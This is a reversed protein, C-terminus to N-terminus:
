RGSQEAMLDNIARSVREVGEKVKERDGERVRALFRGLFKDPHFIRITERLTKRMKGKDRDGDASSMDSLFANIDDKELSASYTPWPIDSYRMEIEQIEGKEGAGAGEAGTGTGTADARENLNAWRSIYRKRKFANYDQNNTVYIGDEAGTNTDTDSGSRAPGATRGQQRHHFARQREKEKKREKKEEKLREKEKELAIRAREAARNVEEVRETERRDKDFGSRIYAAYESDTMCGIDPVGRLYSEERRLHSTNHRHRAPISTSTATEVYSSYAFSSTSYSTFPDGERSLLDEQELHQMREEEVRMRKASRGLDGMWRYGM